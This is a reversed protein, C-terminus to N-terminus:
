NNESRLIDLLSSFEKPLECEFTMEENTIPHAFSLRKAHLCQGSLLSAHKKEFASRGGGYVTDGLLSHGLASM